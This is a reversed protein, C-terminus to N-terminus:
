DETIKISKFFNQLVDNKFVDAVAFKKDYKITNISIFLELTEKEKKLDKIDIVLYLNEDSNGYTYAAYDGFKYEKYNKDDQRDKKVAECTKTSSKTYYMDFYLNQKENSFEMEEYKGGKVNKEFKFDDDKSYEFTTTLKLKSDTYTIKENKSSSGCATLIVLCLVFTLSVLLKNKM